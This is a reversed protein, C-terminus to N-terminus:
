RALFIDQKIKSLFKEFIRKYNTNEEKIGKVDEMQAKLSKIEKELKAIKENDESFTNPLCKLANHTPITKWVNNITCKNSSVKVPNLKNDTIM